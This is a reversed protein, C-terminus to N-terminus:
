QKANQAEIISYKKKYILLLVLRMHSILYNEGSLGTHLVAYCSLKKVESAQNM